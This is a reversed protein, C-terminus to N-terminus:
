ARQRIQTLWAWFLAQQSSKDQMTSLALRPFVFGLLMAQQEYPAPLRGACGAEPTEGELDLVGSLRAAPLHPVPMIGLGRRELLGAIVPHPRITIGTRGKHLLIRDDGVLAAFDGKNQAANIAWDAFSSKGSGSAGRVLVGAEGVVFATAHIASAPAPVEMEGEM